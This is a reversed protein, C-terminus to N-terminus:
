LGTLRLVALYVWQIPVCGWFHCTTMITKFCRMRGHLLCGNQESRVLEYAIYRAWVKSLLSSCISWINDQRLIFCRSYKMHLNYKM